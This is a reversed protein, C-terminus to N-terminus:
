TNDELVSLDYGSEIFRITKEHDIANGLYQYIIKMDDETFDTHLFENIGNLMFERFKRNRWEQNYPKGKSAPRSFWELVKCKIDIINTCNLLCIYQNTKKHAIFEYRENIFSEPFASLLFLKCENLKMMEYAKDLAEKEIEYIM